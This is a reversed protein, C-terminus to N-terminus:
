ADLQQALAAAAPVSPDGAFRTSFDALLTRAIRKNGGAAAALRAIKLTAVASKPRFTADVALRAAVVDLAEGNRKLTLL